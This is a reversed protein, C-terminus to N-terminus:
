DILPDEVLESLLPFILGRESSLCQTNRHMLGGPLEGQFLNKM